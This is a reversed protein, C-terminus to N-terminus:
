VSREQFWEDLQPWLRRMANGGAVLSVHGGKLVIERKDKSGVMGVLPASAATPVIHDFQAAVHLYPAKIAGLDTVEDKLYDRDHLLGDIVRLERPNLTAFLNLLRIQGIRPTETRRKLFRLM